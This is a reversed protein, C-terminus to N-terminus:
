IVDEAAEGIVVSETHSVGVYMAGDVVAFFKAKGDETAFRNEYLVRSKGVPWYVDDTQEHAHLYEPVSKGIDELLTNVDIKQNINGFIHMIEQIQQFNSMKVDSPVGSRVYQIKRDQRTMSGASEIHTPCPIVVDAVQALVSLYHAQVVLLELEGSLKLDSESDLVMLGKVQGAEIKRCLEDKDMNVGMDVLGQGNAESRLQILGNRPRGIHESLVAIQGILMVAEDTLRERDFIIMANPAALLNDAVAQAANNVVVENLSEAFASFGTGNAPEGKALVLAKAIEKLYTLDNDTYFTENAWHDAKSPADNIVILEVGKQVAKRIRVGLVPQKEMIHTGITVILNTGVLESVLNTSADYGLIDKLGKSYGKTAYVNDTKFSENCLRKVMYITENFYKGSIMAALANEGYRLYISQAKRAIYLIAEDWSVVELQSDKRVMPMTLRERNQERVLDFRGKQCLLGENISDAQVPLSRLLLSGKTELTVNCGLGCKNCVSRTEDAKVPVAKHILAREQLAGTPCVRSCQGCSTCDAEEFTQDFAPQVVTDFGRNVFGLIGHDMVEDCIRVCMGCLICKNPDRLFYPHATDMPVVESPGEFREPKVEYDNAFALLNCEYADMCGCELCRNAEELADYSAYGHVVEEFNHMRIEPHEHGMFVKTAPVIDAFDAITLNEKKVTYLPKHKFNGGRLYDTMVRAAKKGDAIAEIAITAGNGVADGGAFVGDLNTRYTGEEVDINGWKNLALDEFGEPALKQGISMIVSDVELIEEEDTPIM